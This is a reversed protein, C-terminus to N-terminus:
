PHKPDTLYSIVIYLFTETPDFDAAEEIDTLLLVGTTVINEVIFVAIIMSRITIVITV